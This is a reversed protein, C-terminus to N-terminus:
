SIYMNLEYRKDDLNTVQVQLAKRQPKGDKTIALSYSNTKGNSPKRPGSAVKRDVDDMDVEYGMKEAQKYAAQMASSFDKHYLEYGTASKAEAVEEQFEEYAPEVSLLGMKSKPVNLAKIAFLKASYLDKADKDLYIEVKKGNFMAIWGALKSEDLEVEEPVCNPVEKGDKIKMGIAKYGKWCAGELGDEEKEEGLTKVLSAVLDDITDAVVQGRQGKINAVWMDAEDDLSFDGVVKGGRKIDHVGNKGKVLEWSGVKLSKAGKRWQQALREEGLISEAIKALDKTLKDNFM